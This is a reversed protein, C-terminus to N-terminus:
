SPALNLEDKTFANTYLKLGSGTFGGDDMIWYALSVPTIYNAINTPVIKIGNAYFLGYFENFCPLALTTFSINQRTKGTKTDEITTISPPTQVFQQFLCYLHLLYEANTSGQRFVARVNATDSSRRMYIDGLLNGVLVQKLFEDLTFNDREKKSLRKTSNSKRTHFSKILFTYIIGKIQM